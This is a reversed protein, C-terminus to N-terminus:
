ICILWVIAHVLGFTNFYISIYLVNKLFHLISATHNWRMDTITFWAVCLPKPILNIVHLFTSFLCAILSITAPLCSVVVSIFGKDIHGIPKLQWIVKSIILSSKALAYDFFIALQPVGPGTEKVVTTLPGPKFSPLYHNYSINSIPFSWIRHFVYRPIFM